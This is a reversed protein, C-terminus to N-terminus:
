YYKRLKRSHRSRSRRSRSLKRRSRSRKKGRAIVEDPELNDNQRQRKRNDNIEDRVIDRKGRRNNIGNNNNIATNPAPAAALTNSSM